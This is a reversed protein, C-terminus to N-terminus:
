RPLPAALQRIMKRIAAIQKGNQTPYDAGTYGWWDWCAKPNFLWNLSGWALGSRSIIQPYLVILQNTEAWRNYGASEVFRSGIEDANQRCGHFAVHIQCGGARCNSPIYVYGADALSADVPKGEVYPQQDFLVALPTKAAPAMLPGPLLHKLLSGAADMAQGDPEICRNVFPPSSTSCANASLDVASPMAHGLPAPKLYQIAAPPLRSRFFEDLADMVSREVTHDAGGSLLWVRDDNLYEPPDIRGTKALAVIRAETQALTPVPASSDPAMCNKLARGVSAQACDYPGGAILGAGRVLRSHAVQFQAAMYAGSSIGSVTVAREVAALAPLQPSGALVPSAFILAGFLFPLRLFLRSPANLFLKKLSM